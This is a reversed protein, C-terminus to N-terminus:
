TEDENKDHQGYCLNKGEYISPNNCLKNRLTKATCGRLGAPPEIIERVAVNELEHNNNWNLSNVAIMLPVTTLLMMILDVLITPDKAKATYLLEREMMVSLELIIKFFVGFLQWNFFKGFPFQVNRIIVAISICLVTNSVPILKDESDKLTIMLCRRLYFHAFFATMIALGKIIM